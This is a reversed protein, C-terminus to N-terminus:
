CFIDLMLCLDSQCNSRKINLSELFGCIGVSPVLQSLLWHYFLPNFKLSKATLSERRVGEVPTHLKQVLKITVDLSRIRICCKFDLVRHNEGGGSFARNDVLYM